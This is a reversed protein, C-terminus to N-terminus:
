PIPIGNSNGQTWTNVNTNVVRSSKKDEAELKMVKAELISLKSSTTNQYNDQTESLRNIRGELMDINKARVRGVEQKFDELQLSFNSREDSSKNNSFVITIMLILLVLTTLHVFREIIVWVM